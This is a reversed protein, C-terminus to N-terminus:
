GYPLTLFFNGLQLRRNGNLIVARKLSALADLSQMWSSLTGREALKELYELQARHGVRNGAGSTVLVIDRLVLQWHDFLQLLSQKNDYQALLADIDAFASASGTTLYKLLREAERTYQNRYDVDNLLREALEIRGYSMFSADVSDDRTYRESLSAALDSQVTPAVACHHVRSRVTMPLASFHEIVGIITLFAPPEELTKLLANYGQMNLLALDPIVSVRRTGVSPAISVAQLFERVAEIKVVEDGELPKLVVMDPHWPKGTEDRRWAQCSQCEGDVDGMCLIQRVLWFALERKGVGMPGSVVYAHNWSRQARVTEFYERWHTLSIAALTAPSFQM